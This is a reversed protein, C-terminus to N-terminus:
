RAVTDDTLGAKSGRRDPARGEEHPHRHILVPAGALAGADGLVVLRRDDLTEVAHAYQEDVDGRYRGATAPRELADIPRGGQRSGALRPRLMEDDHVRPERAAIEPVALAPPSREDAGGNVPVRRELDIAHRVALPEVHLRWPVIQSRHVHLEVALGPLENSAAAHVFQDVIGRGQDQSGEVGALPHPSAGSKRTNDQVDALREAAPSYMSPSSPPILATGLKM